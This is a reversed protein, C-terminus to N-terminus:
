GAQALAVTEAHPRGGAQTWGRGIIRGGGVIVCGVAPNPWVRGLGRRALGVAHAM